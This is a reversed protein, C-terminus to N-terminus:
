AGAAAASTGRLFRGYAWGIAILALGLGMFSLIRLVGELASADVLFVKLTVLTLLALGVIRLDNVGKAIGRWLWVLSLGLLGASYLYNETTTIADATLIAGHIGQRIAGLVAVIALAMAAGRFPRQPAGLRTALWFWFAALAPHLTALNLLPITGVSQTVAVPNLIFLDFWLIRFAALGILGLGAARLRPLRWLAALGLAFLIHTLVARELFGLMVFRPESAIALPQKLLAYLTAALGTVVLAALALRLKAAITEFRMGAFAALIAAPLGVERLLAVLSPLRTFPTTDGSLSAALLLAMPLLQPLMALFSAALPAAEGHIPLLRRSPNLMAAATVAALLPAHWPAPVLALPISLMLIWAAWHLIPRAAHAGILWTHLALLAAPVLALAAIANAPPIAGAAFVSEGYAILADTANTWYGVAFPLPALSLNALSGDGVRRAWFALAVAIALLLSAIWLPAIPQALGIALLLAAVAAGGTLGLDFRSDPATRDRWRWSVWGCSLAAITALAAWGIPRLLDGQLTNTLLLPMAGAGLAIGTWIRADPARRLLWHGVGGFMLTFLLAALPANVADGGILAIALLVLVLALAAGAGPSLRHDRWGLWLAAAALLAYLGWALPSFELQPALLMLQVLGTVLPALRLLRNSTGARPLALTATFALTLVFLGVWALEGRDALAMLILPWVFGGGTAALALWLWGRHIALAFLGTTFLALYVLLPAVNAADLGTVLPAAFGGVLGMIATPPGHRLSLALASVTIAVMLVLAAITGVLGYLEAAMYLTGYLTAIGAGALAQGIRPDDRTARHRRSAESASLLAVGFIAGLISRVGPGLLGSEISYRVLFFASLILAAGGIWIPLKGGVLNEFTAALNLPTARASQPEPAYNAPQPEPSAPRETAPAPGAEPPPPAAVIRAVPRPAEFAAAPQPQVDPQEIDPASSAIYGRSELEALARELVRIRDFARSLLVAFVVAAVALVLM